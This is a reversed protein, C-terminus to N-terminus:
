RQSAGTSSTRGLLRPPGIRARVGPSFHALPEDPSEPVGAAALLSQELRVIRTPHLPWPEHEASVSAPVRGFFTFLVWRATLFDELETHESAEAFREVELDYGATGRPWLRRGSYRIRRGSEDLRLRSWMYPLSFMTRAVLVASLRPIDLSFFWIGFRGDPGRVYTRVNSEPTTSLWPLSPVGPVRLNRLLFPTLGVWASGDFTEIELGKPLLPRIVAPEYRWHLFTILDWSQYMIPYRVRETPHPGVGRREPAM